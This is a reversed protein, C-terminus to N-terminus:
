LFFTTALFMGKFITSENKHVGRSFQTGNYDGRRSPNITTEWMEGIIEGTVDLKLQEYSTLDSSIKITSPNGKKFKVL